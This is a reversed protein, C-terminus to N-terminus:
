FIARADDFRDGEAREIRAFEEELLEQVWDRTIEEGEDTIARTNVWQWIQSRSIEATAADEMLNHIGVAGNGRLWAEIYRIGVEVNNRIGM